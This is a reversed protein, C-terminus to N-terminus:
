PVAIGAAVDNGFFAIPVPVLVGFFSETTPGAIGCRLRLLYRNRAHVAAFFDLPRWRMYPALYIARYLASAVSNFVGTFRTALREYLARRGTSIGMHIAALCTLKHCHALVVSLCLASAAWFVKCPFSGYELSVVVGTLMASCIATKLRVVDLFYSVVRVQAMVDAVSQRQAMLAVIVADVFSHRVENM